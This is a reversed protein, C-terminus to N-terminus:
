VASESQPAPRVWGQCTPRPRRAAASRQAAYPEYTGTKTRNRRLERSITSPARQLVAAISRLSTGPASLDRIRERELLSLFRSSLERELTPLATSPPAATPLTVIKNYDVVRGDPYVRRNNAHVIGQDWNIATRLNLQVARAADRRPLGSARLRFYEARRRRSRRKPDIGAALLWSNCTGANLGLERAAASVNELREFAAMLAAKDASRYTLQASPDHTPIAM